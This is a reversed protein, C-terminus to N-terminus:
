NALDDAHGAIAQDTAATSESAALITNAFDNVLKIYTDFKGKLSKFRNGLSTSADGYFVDEAGVRNMSSEFEDFINSMISACDKITNADSRVREFTISTTTEGAM